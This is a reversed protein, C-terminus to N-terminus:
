RGAADEVASDLEPARQDWLYRSVARVGRDPEGQWLDDHAVREALIGLMAALAESGGDYFHPGHGAGELGDLVEPYALRRPVLPYCGAAVAEVMTIGFFEHQASSVIVDAEALAAEYDARTKQYGWREIQDAFEKEAWDFEAPASRFQEGIVSVRFDVGQERLLLLADFFTGPDKDFEWRAAWLIHMPSSPPSPESGGDIGPPQIVSRSRIRDPVDWPQHDPMREFFAPIADLFEDRHFASNFWAQAAALATSINSFCYQYDREDEHQYPYTLQNEHFYAVSPLDRVARPALGLFEPLNLMDSCLLVDWGEGNAVRAAVDDAFTIPAHRMRWKWKFPPLGLVTWEHRSRAIWGDLFAKHSGGYYPELALIRM